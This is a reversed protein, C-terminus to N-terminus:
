FPKKVMALAEEVSLILLKSNKFDKPNRTIIANIKKSNASNYQIADEFDKFDSHLANHIMVKTVDTTEIFQELEKLIAITKDHSSCSKRIYYYITAYSVASIYLKIEAKFGLDFLQQGQISFPQHDILVDIIINTDLFFHKM